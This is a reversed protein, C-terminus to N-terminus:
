AKEFFRVLLFTVLTHTLLGLFEEIPLGLLRFPLTAGIPFSWLGLRVAIIDVTWWLMTVRAIRRAQVPQVLERWVDSKWTVVMVTALLGMQIFFYSYAARM